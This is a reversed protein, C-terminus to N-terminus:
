QYQKLLCLAGRLFKLIRVQVTRLYMKTYYCLIRALEPDKWSTTYSILSRDLQSLPNLSKSDTKSRRFQFYKEAPREAIKYASPESFGLKM